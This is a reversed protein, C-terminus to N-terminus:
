QLSSVSSNVGINLVRIIRSLLVLPPTSWLNYDDDPWNKAAHLIDVTGLMSWLSFCAMIQLVLDSQWMFCHM